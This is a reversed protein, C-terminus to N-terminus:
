YLLLQKAPAERGESMPYRRVTVGTGHLVSGRFYINTVSELVIMKIVPFIVWLVLPM